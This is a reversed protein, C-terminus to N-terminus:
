KNNHLLTRVLRKLSNVTELESHTGKKEWALYESTKFPEWVSRVFSEVWGVM